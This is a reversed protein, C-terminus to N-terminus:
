RWNISLGRRLDIFEFVADVAEFPSSASSDSDADTSSIELPAGADGLADDGAEDVVPAYPAIVGFRWPSTDAGAQITHNSARMGARNITDEHSIPGTAEGAEANIFALGTAAAQDIVTFTISLSTGEGGTANDAAFPTASITHSGL